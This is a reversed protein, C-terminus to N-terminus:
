CLIWVGTDVGSREDQM